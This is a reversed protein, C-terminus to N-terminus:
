ASRLICIDTLDGAKIMYSPYSNRRPPLYTQGTAISLAVKEFDMADTLSFALRYEAQSVYTTSRQKATSIFQPAAWRAEPPDSADYYEVARSFFSAKAPLAARVRRVFESGDLIEVFTAGLQNAVVADSSTSMCFVFIEDQRVASLLASNPICFSMGQTINNIELGGPPRYESHGENKDGRIEDERDRYYSISRCLLEGDMFREAWMPEDYYKYLPSPVPEM